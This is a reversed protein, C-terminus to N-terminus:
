TRKGAPAGARPHRDSRGLPVGGDVIATMAVNRGVITSDYERTVPKDLDVFTQPPCVEASAGVMRSTIPMLPLPFKM